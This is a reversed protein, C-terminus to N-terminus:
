KWTLKPKDPTKSFTIDDTFDQGSLETVTRAEDRGTTLRTETENELQKEAIKEAQM